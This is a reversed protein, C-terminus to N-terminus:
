DNVQPSKRFGVAEATFFSKVRNTLDFIHSFCDSMCHKFAWSVMYMGRTVHGGM